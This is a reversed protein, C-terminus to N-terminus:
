TLEQAARDVQKVMAHTLGFVQDRGEFGLWAEFTELGARALKDIIKPPLDSSAIPHRAAPLPALARLGPHDSTPLPRHSQSASSKRPMILENTITSPFISSPRLSHRRQPRKKPKTAARLRYAHQKCAASCFRADSRKPEFQTGCPCIKLVIDTSAKATVRRPHWLKDPPTADSQRILEPTAAWFLGGSSRKM